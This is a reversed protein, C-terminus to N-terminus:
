TKVHLEPLDEGGLVIHAIGTAICVIIAVTIHIVAIVVFMTTFHHTVVITLSACGM